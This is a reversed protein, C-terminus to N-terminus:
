ATIEEVTCYYIGVGCVSLRSEANKSGATKLVFRVTFASFVTVVYMDFFLFIPRSQPQYQPKSCPFKKLSM